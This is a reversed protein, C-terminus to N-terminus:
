GRKDAFFATLADNLAQAEHEGIKEGGRSEWMDRVALTADQLFEDFGDEDIKPSEIEEPSVAVSLLQPQGKKPEDDFNESIMNVVDKDKWKKPIMLLVKAIIKKM